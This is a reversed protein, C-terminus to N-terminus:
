EWTTFLADLNEETRNNYRRKINNKWSNWTRQGILADEIQRITYGSVQDLDGEGSLSGLGYNTDDTNSDDIMDAVVLTYNEFNRGTGKYLSKPYVMRTLEWEVGTAWSEAVRDNANNYDSHNIEWHSAIRGNENGKRINELATRMTEVSYPNELQRGLKTMGEQDAESLYVPLPEVDQTQCSFM